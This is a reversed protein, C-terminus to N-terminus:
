LLPGSCQPMRPQSATERRKSPYLAKMKLILCALFFIRPPFGHTNYIYLHSHHSHHSYRTVPSHQSGFATNAPPAKNSQTPPRSSHSYRTVPSHQSGFATNAPPAKNSQTPPRSSQSYRTVPSHQSGFATNAPPAKNSQTPPRSSQSTAFLSTFSFRLFWILFCFINLIM